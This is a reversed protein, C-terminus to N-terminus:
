GTGERRFVFAPSALVKYGTPLGISQGRGRGVARRQEPSLRRCRRPHMIQAVAAFDSVDFLVTVGDSGDQWLTVGPLAALKRAIPGAKNTVAALTSRGVPLYPGGSLSYNEALLRSVPMLAM